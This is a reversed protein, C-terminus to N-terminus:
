KVKDRFSSLSLPVYTHVEKGRCNKIQKNIIIKGRLVIPKKTEVIKTKQM